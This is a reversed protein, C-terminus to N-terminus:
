MRNYKVMLSKEKILEPFILTDFVVTMFFSSAILVAMLAPLFSWFDV